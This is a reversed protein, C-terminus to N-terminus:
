RRAWLWPRNEFGLWGCGADCAAGPTAKTSPLRSFPWSTGRGRLGACPPGQCSRQSRPATTPLQSPPPSASISPGPHKWAVLTNRATVWAGGTFAEGAERGRRSGKNLTLKECTWVRRGVGGAGSTQCECSQQARPFSAESFYHTGLREGQAGRGCPPGRAPGESGPPLLATQPRARAPTM